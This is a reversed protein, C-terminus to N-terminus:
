GAALQAFTRLQAWLAPQPSRLALRRRGAPALSSPKALAQVIEERDGNREAVRTRKVAAVAALALEAPAPQQEPQRYGPREGAGRQDAAVQQHRQHQRQDRDRRDDVVTLGRGQHDGRREAGEAAASSSAAKM